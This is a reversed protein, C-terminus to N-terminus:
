ANELIKKIVGEMNEFIEKDSLRLVRLDPSQMLEAKGEDRLAEEECKQGAELELILGAKPCYFDAVFKGILRQRYFFHGKLQRGRLRAWLVGAATIREEKAQPRFAVNGAM